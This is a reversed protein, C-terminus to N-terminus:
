GQSWWAVYLNPCGLIFHKSNELNRLPLMIDSKSFASCLAWHVPASLTEHVPASMTEHESASQTKHATASLTIHATASLTKHM